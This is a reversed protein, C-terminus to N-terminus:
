KNLKKLYNLAKEVSEKKCKCDKGCKCKKKKDKKPMPDYRTMTHGVKPAYEHARANPVGNITGGLTSTKNTAGAMAATGNTAEDVPDKKKYSQLKIEEARIESQIAAKLGPDNTVM